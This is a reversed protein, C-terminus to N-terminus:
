FQMADVQKLLGQIDKLLENEIFALEKKNIVDNEYKVRALKTM